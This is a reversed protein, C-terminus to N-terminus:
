FDLTELFVWEEGPLVLGDGVLWHFVEFYEVDVITAHGHCEGAADVYSQRAYESLTLFPPFSETAFCPYLRQDILVRTSRNGAGM